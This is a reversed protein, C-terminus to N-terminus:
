RVIRKLRVAFFGDAGHKHPWIRMYGASDFLESGYKFLHSGNEIVFEPNSSLFDQVVDEDEEPATSCTAYVLIGGPKLLYSAKDLLLRQRSACRALEAPQLRWKAEPNRRIVGLGSCPADLLIRDFMLGKLYDTSLADGVLCCINKIGMREASERIKKVRRQNLDTATIKGRGGMLQSLHTAKGGPAACVDLVEDDPEPDLLHAVLQSSEDQVTFMGESFGNLSTIQHNQLLRIGEPSYRCPEALIGSASFSDMIASRNTKLTNARLTLLPIKLSEAALEEAEMLSFQRLWQEALWNPVSYSATLWNIASKEAVPLTITERSRLFNRLVGNILGKARPIVEAALAVTENVAAHEPVRDLYHIQYLGLRLLILVSIELRNLPQNVLKDLYYDITGQHRLVGFVIEAFLGRDAGQILNQSLEIDILEDAHLDSGSLKILTNYAAHRPSSTSKSLQKNKQM